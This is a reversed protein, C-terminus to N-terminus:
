FWSNTDSLGIKLLLQSRTNSTCPAFHDTSLRSTLTLAYITDHKSEQGEVQIALMPLLNVSIVTDRSSSHAMIFLPLRERLQRLSLPKLLLFCCPRKPCGQGGGEEPEVTVTGPSGADGEPHSM